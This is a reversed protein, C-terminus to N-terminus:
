APTVGDSQLLVGTASVFSCPYGGAAVVTVPLGNAAVPTMPTGLVTTSPVVPLGNAAVLTVPRHM